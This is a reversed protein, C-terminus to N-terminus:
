VAYSFASLDSQQSLGMCDCNHNKWYNHVSTLTSGYLLSLALSNISEFQPAPSSEQSDRPSCPSWGILGLPFWGQINMPLVSKSTLAAISQGGSEFFQSLPFSGSAPFSQLCSSFPVVSSSITPYCWQSSPCSNPYVRPTPSPCPPSAHQLGHLWFSHSMVSGSFQVSSIYLYSLQVMFFALCHLISAKLNHHQPTGQAALLDLWDIRFSILGSYKSSASISFSWYKPWRICLVSESSFVRISPFISPPLLLPHCLILHNSPM